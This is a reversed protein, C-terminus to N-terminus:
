KMSELIRTFDASGRAYRKVADLDALGPTTIPFWRRKSGVTAEVEVQRYDALSRSSKPEHNVIRTILHIDQQATPQDPGEVDTDMTGDESPSQPVSDDERPSNIIKLHGIFQTSFRGTTDNRVVVKNGNVETVTSPNAFLDHTVSAKRRDTNQVLVRTGPHLTAAARARAREDHDRNQEVRHAERQLHEATRHLMVSDQLEMQQARVQPANLSNLRGFLFDAASVGGLVSIPRQNMNWQTIPIDTSWAEPELERIRAGLKERVEM